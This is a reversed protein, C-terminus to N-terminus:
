RISDSMPCISACPSNSALSMAISTSSTKLSPRMDTWTPMRCAVQRSLCYSQRANAAGMGTLLALAAITSTRGLRSFDVLSYLLVASILSFFYTYYTVSNTYHRGLNNVASYAMLVMFLFVAFPARAGRQGRPFGDRFCLLLGGGFLLVLALGRLVPDGTPDNPVIALKGSPLCILSRTWAFRSFAPTFFWPYWPDFVRSTWLSLSALTRIPYASRHGLVSPQYVWFLQEVRTLHGIYLGAFLLLPAFIAAAASFRKANDIRGQKWICGIYGILLVASIVAMEYFLMATSISFAYVALWFSLPRGSQGPLRQIALLSLVLFAYGLLYGGLHNWMVIECDKTLVSFVLAFVSAFITPKICRLLEYLLYVVLLHFGLNATNWARYNYGFLSSGIALWGFLLPRYLAQDGKGYTRVANYDLFRLGNSLSLDNKLEAFYWLQDAAFFRNLAPAYVPITLLVLLILFLAREALPHRRSRRSWPPMARTSKPIISDAAADPGAKEARAPLTTLEQKRAEAEPKM